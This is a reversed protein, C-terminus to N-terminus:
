ASLLRSINCIIRDELTAYLKLAPDEWERSVSVSKYRLSNVRPLLSLLNELIEPYDRDNTAFVKFKIERSVQWSMQRSYRLIDISRINILVLIPHVFGLIELEVERRELVIDILSGDDDSIRVGRYIWSLFIASLYLVPFLQRKPMREFSEEEEGEEKIGLSSFLSIWSLAQYRLRM